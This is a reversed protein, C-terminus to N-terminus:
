FFGTIINEIKTSANGDGFINKYKNSTQFTRIANIIKDSNIFGNNVNDFIKNEGQQVTEPWGTSTDVTICPVKAFYAEKQLGGSDTVIIKSNKTIFLMDLYGVPKILHINPSKILTDMLEYETLFKKTRPHLPFLIDTEKSIILLADVINRLNKEVDTNRARHITVLIYDKKELNLTDLIQSGKEAKKLFYKFNDLMVDGTLYVGEFLGEKNLNEMARVTPAFLLTSIHDTMVRNIEEPVSKDYMRPGAEVHAIPIQLKAASLAGALTSNTDGYLLVLDPNESSLLKEIEIMMLGTQHAHSSSGIGLNYDPQPIGMEEFFVESLRKDYHQGTHILVETHNKRLEKSVLAAKIFQPRAGLVTFIKM